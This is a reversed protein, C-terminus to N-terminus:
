AGPLLFAMTKAMNPAMAGSPLIAPQRKAAMKPWSDQHGHAKQDRAIARAIVVTIPWKAMGSGGFSAKAVIGNLWFILSSSRSPAATPMM